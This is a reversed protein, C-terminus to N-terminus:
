LLQNLSECVFDIQENTIEPFIPLSIILHAIAEANPFDGPRYGLSSCGAQLHIPIPYHIGCFIGRDALRQIIKDREREVQIVFLHYVHSSDKATAPLTIQPNNKLNNKYREAAHQRAQNWASLYKLKVNLIAAQISDLRSNIGFTPHYYKQPSGYNRLALLKEYVLPDNTTVAGGDGFAGLNKGPYFSFAAATGLSGASKNKYQAGHAQCADEIVYLKYREALANIEDMAAIQGYLHVPIIAKTKPTIAKELAKVDILYTTADCDVLVPRAGALEIAAVTAFFTNTVTIVEDGPRIGVARLALHLADTGSAVGVAYNAGVFAAFRKEFTEVEKGLVFATNDLVSNIAKLFEDRHKECQIKLDVLPIM